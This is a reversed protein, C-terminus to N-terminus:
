STAAMRRVLVLADLARREHDALTAHWRDSASLLDPDIDPDALADIAAGADGSDAAQLMRLIAMPSYGATRLARIVEIRDLDAERYRRDGSAEDRPIALLGNREWSRLSDYSAGSRRVAEGPRIAGEAGPLAPTALGELWGHVVARARAAHAQEARVLALHAVADEEAARPGDRAATLILGVASRHIAYGPWVTGRLLRALRLHDLHRETFRRYGRRSRRVPPLYGWSEYLRVTNPHIGVDRALEGTRLARRAPRAAASM